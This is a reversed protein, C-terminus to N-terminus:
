PTWRAARFLKKSHAAEKLLAIQEAREPPVDWTLPQGVDLPAIRSFLREPNAAHAASQYARAIDIRRWRRLARATMMKKAKEDNKM